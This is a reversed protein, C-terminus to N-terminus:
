KSSMDNCAALQLLLLLLSLCAMNLAAAKHKTVTSSGQTTTM